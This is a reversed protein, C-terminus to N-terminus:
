INVVQWELSRNLVVVSCKGEYDLVLVFTGIEYQARKIDAKTPLESRTFVMYENNGIKIM